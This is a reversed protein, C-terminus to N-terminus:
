NVELLKKEQEKVEMKPVTIKLVGNEYKATANATDVNQPLSFHRYFGAYNREFRYVGKKKDEDKVEHKTEAKIEIGDKGVHVKIDDKNMGPIEIEAVLESDTEYIDSVPQRYTSNVLETGSAQPGGLLKQGRSFFPNAGFFNSFMSDMQEQMRNMEDWITTRRM